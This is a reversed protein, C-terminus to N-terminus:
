RLIGLQELIERQKQEMVLREEEGIHDYGTLHLVSHAILFAFERKPSHGYAAAQELVREKSIVIDGLVLEGSEPDFCDEEDELFGFEGPAEYEVMPFSLVDTPRDIGRFQRNMEHIQEDTTLLLNVQAEYPCGVYDLAADVVERALEECPLPLRLSGEEEFYLAM